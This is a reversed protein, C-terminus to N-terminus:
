CAASEKKSHSVIFNSITILTVTGAGAKQTNTKVHEASLM